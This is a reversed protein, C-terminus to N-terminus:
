RRGYRQFVLFLGVAVVVLVAIGILGGIPSTEVTTRLEIRDNAEANRANVTIVYDGAVATGAPTITAEVQQSTEPDINPITEQAFTVEWNRPPSATLEVDVLPASGTNTVVVTVTTPSGANARLSLRQDSTNLDMGFSGTIEVSVEAEAPEPGGVARVPITYVGVAADPPPDVTVNVSSIGGAELVATTAGSEGTGPRATARWGEPAETQFSLTVEQNSDNRLELDFEFTDDPSGGQTPFESELIVAGPVQEAITLDLTLRAAIGSASQAEVEVRNSGVGADDPIEVEVTFQARIQGAAAADPGTTVAAITSGGGRMTTTWGDPQSVVSLDVREPAETTVTVSFEATGGPDAFVAPFPTTITLSQALAVPAIAITAVAAALLARVLRM